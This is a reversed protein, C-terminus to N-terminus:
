FDDRVYLRNLFERFTKGIWLSQKIHNGVWIESLSQDTHLFYVGEPEKKGKAYFFCYQSGITDYAFPVIIGINKLNAEEELLAQVEDVMLHLSYFGDLDCPEGNVDIFVHDNAPAEHHKYFAIFDEPLKVGIQKEAQAIENDSISEQTPIWKIM